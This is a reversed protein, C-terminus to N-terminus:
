IELKWPLKNLISSFPLNFKKNDYNNL